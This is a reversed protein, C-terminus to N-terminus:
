GFMAHAMKALARQRHSHKNKLQPRMEAFTLACGEPQGDPVFVDDWGFGGAGRPERSIEGRM